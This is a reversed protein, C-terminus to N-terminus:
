LPLINGLNQLRRMDITEPAKETEEKPLSRSGRGGGGSDARM